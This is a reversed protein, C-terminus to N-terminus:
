GGSADFGLDAVQTAGAEVTDACNNLETVDVDDHLLSARRRRRAKGIVVQGPRWKRMEAPRGFM